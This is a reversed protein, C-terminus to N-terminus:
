TASTPSLRFSNLYAEQFSASGALEVYEMRRAIVNARAKAESSLLCMRAGTGASNGIQRVRDLPFSPLMGIAMANQLDVYTGFAGAVTLDSVEDPSVSADRLLVAVGAAISAKAKQLERTDKQTFVLSRRSASEEPPVIVAELCDTGKVIISSVWSPRMRGSRDMLGHRVMEAVIDIAGSGCIGCAPAGDITQYRVKQSEDLSVHEVAGSAARMGHRIHAGEFAPGSAASAVWLRGDKLLILETNTGVDVMLRTGKERDFGVALADAVCDAGVFGAVNPLAYVMCGEGTDLGLSRAEIRIATKAVPSYPYSGLSSPELGMALHHMFTNGVLVMERVNSAEEGCQRCADGTMQSIAERLSKVMMEFGGRHESIYSLRSMVDDGYPLHPNVSPSTALVRGTRLDLLYGVLKTTGIDFAMGLLAAGDKALAVLETRDYVIAEGRGNLRRLAPAIARLCHATVSNIKFGSKAMAAIIVKDPATVFGLDSPAIEFRIATVSPNLTVPTESGEAQLRYSSNRSELPIEVTLLADGQIHAECALRYRMRMEAARFCGRERDTIPTLVDDGERVVM